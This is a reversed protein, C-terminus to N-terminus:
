AHWARSQAHWCHRCHLVITADPLPAPVRPDPHTLTCGAGHKCGCTQDVSGALFVKGGRVREAETLLGGALLGDRLKHLSAVRRYPWRAIGAHKCARKFQATDLGLLESAKEKSLHFSQSFCPCNLYNLVHTLSPPWLICRGCSPDPKRWHM